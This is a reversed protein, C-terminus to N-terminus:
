PRVGTSAHSGAPSKGRNRRWILALIAGLSVAAIGAVSLAVTMVSIGGATSTFVSTISQGSGGATASGGKIGWFLLDNGAANKIQEGDVVVRIWWWAGDSPVTLRAVYEGPSEGPGVPASAVAPGDHHQYVYAFADLGLVPVVYHEGNRCGSERAAFSAAIVDGDRIAGGQEYFRHTFAQGGPPCKALAVHRPGSLMLGAAVLGAILYAAARRM